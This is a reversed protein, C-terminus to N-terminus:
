VPELYDPSFAPEIGALLVIAQGDAATTVSAVVYHDPFAEAFPPLVRVTQGVEFM